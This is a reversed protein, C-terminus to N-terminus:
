RNVPHGTPHGATGPLAPKWGAPVIRYVGGGRHDLLYLEGAEDEGFSSIRLDTELYRAPLFADGDRTLGWVHGSCYDAYLYVGELRPILTGRYVYGGTVSCGEDHGYEAVPLTGHDCSRKSSTSPPPFCHRGEMHSWGYDEGGKGDAPQHNIEEWDDQGVDAVFLDGNRRDFSFRWPNRLGYAWIEPRYNTRGAFPNDAPIRYPQKGAAGDVDIRLLKGLYSVSNQATQFPDGAGGGDGTGIYLYGDPGFALMGGNHNAAPNPITLLPTLSAPDGGGSRDPLTTLAAVVIDGHTDTYYVFFRRNKAFRPHFALGLLGREGGSRIRDRLDLFTRRTGDPELVHIRGAQEVVYRRGSGDGGHTLLVPQSFGAAEEHLALAVPAGAAPTAPAAARAPPVAAGVALALVVPAIITAIVPAGAAARLSTLFPTIRRM